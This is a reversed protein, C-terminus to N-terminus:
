LEADAAHVLTFSFIGRVCLTLSRQVIVTPTHPHTSRHPNLTLEWTRKYAWLMDRYNRILCPALGGLVGVPSFQRLGYLWLSGVGVPHM